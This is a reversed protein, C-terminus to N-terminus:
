KRRQHAAYGALLVIAFGIGVGFALVALFLLIELLMKNRSPYTGKLLELRVALTLPFGVDRL